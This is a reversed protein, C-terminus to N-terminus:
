GIRASQFACRFPQNTIMKWITSLHAEPNESFAQHFPMGSLLSFRYESTQALVNLINLLGLVSDFDNNRLLEAM